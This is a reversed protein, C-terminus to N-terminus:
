SVYLDWPAIFKLDRFTTSFPLDEYVGTVTVDLKNDIIVLKGIPEKEGFLARSTSAALLISNPEKLGDRTGKLMKLTLMGPAGKDMYIGTRSLKKEGYTLIHGGLWSAMVVYKFDSGFSTQLENGIPIPMAEGSYVIGNSTQSQMVRAIRDYNKHYKVFSMDDYIWLGILISVAMGVALGGINIFSSVKSKLINRWAITFYNQLM